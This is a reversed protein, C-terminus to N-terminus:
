LTRELIENLEKEFLAVFSKVLEEKMEPPMAALGLKASCKAIKAIAYMERMRAEVLIMIAERFEKKIEPNENMKTKLYEKIEDKILEKTADVIFDEPSLVEETTKLIKQVMDEKEAM